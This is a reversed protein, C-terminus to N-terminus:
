DAAARKRAPTKRPASRSAAPKRAAAKEAPKGAPKDAAAAPKADAKDGTATDAPKGDAAKGESKDEGSKEAEVLNRKNEGDSKFDTEYWGGGKLRFVPASVLKKLRLKGCEPCKKLPADTIKQLAETQAGCGQCQYEYFPM